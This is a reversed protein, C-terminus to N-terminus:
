TDASSWGWALRGVVGGLGILPAMFLCLPVYILSLSSGRSLTLQSFVFWIRSVVSIVGCLFFFLTFSLSLYDASIVLEQVLNSSYHSSLFFERERKRGRVNIRYDTLFKQTCVFLFSFPKRPSSAFIAVFNSVHSLAESRAQSVRFHASFFSAIEQGRVACSSIPFELLFWIVHSHSAM